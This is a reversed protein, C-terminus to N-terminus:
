EEGILANRFFGTVRERYAAPCMSFGGTHGAGPVTWLAGSIGASEVFRLGYEGEDPVDGAAIFLFSTDAAEGISKVMSLPPKQGSVCRVTGYMVRTTWSRLINRRDSLALYDEITRHTAGDAAIARMDPYASAAGLLVEGGMSLGLAGIATVDERSKLYSVAAGVDQSNQWGFANGKGGSEGHGRQDYALVGFGERALMGAHARVDERSGNAGHVLIIAAGNRPPAYWATLRVGDAATLDLETFGEPPEGVDSPHRSTAYVGMGAPFVIYLVICIAGLGILLRKLWKRNRM